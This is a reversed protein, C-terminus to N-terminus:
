LGCKQTCKSNSGSIHSSVFDLTVLNNTEPLVTVEDTLVEVTIKRRFNNLVNTV